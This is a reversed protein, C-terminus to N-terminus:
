DDDGVHSSFTGTKEDYQYLSGLVEMEDPETPGTPHRNVDEMHAIEAREGQPLDNM